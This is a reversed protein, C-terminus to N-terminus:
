GADQFLQDATVDGSFSKQTENKNESNKSVSYIVDTHTLM